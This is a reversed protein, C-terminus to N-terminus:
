ICPCLGGDKKEVFFFSAAAPSISPRIYGSALAEKIYEDMAKSEPLLLPYVKSKPPMTNPLLDIACDRSRHPPLQTVKEKSFVELLSWYERPIITADTTSPTEISTTHCVWTLVNRLCHSLCHPSWRTLEREKWSIHPVYCQLWHFGMIIPITPLSIVYFPTEEHHLLSVQLTLPLTQCTILGEGIPRNDMAM